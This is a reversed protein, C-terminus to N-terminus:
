SRVPLIEFSYSISASKEIMASVSCYKEFSSAIAQAAKTEKIDGYLTFHAEVETYIKPLDERRKGKIRLEIHDISQRMKELIMVIDITSCGGLAMLVSEMPGVSQGDNGLILSDGRKNTAKYRHLSGDTELFVETM